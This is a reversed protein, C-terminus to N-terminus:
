TKQEFLWVLCQIGFIDFVRQHMGYELRKSILLVSLVALNMDFYLDIIIHVNNNCVKVVSYFTLNKLWFCCFPCVLSGFRGFLGTSRDWTVCGGKPTGRLSIM